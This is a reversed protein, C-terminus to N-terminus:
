SAKRRKEELVDLMHQHSAIKRRCRNQPAGNREIEDIHLWDEYTTAKDSLKSLLTELGPKEDATNEELWEAIARAVTQSDTRNEPITGRPGRRFWGAAFLGPEIMGTEISTANALLDARNFSGDDEFGIATVVSDCEIHKEENGKTKRLKISSLTGDKGIYEELQWGSHFVVRTTTNENPAAVLDAIVAANSGEDASEIDDGEALSFSLGHLRGLETIMEVDFRADKIPSRGVIHIEELPDGIRAPDLDSGDFEDGSKALLRAVDVAVNGNGLIVARRGFQPEFGDSAPHANWFRTVEGASYIGQLDSGPVDFKRDAYLGTALVVADVCERLEHLSLDKGIEVNGLFSVGQKEFLRAFQRTVAKTGQHDPAVGYRVLGYPVCLRELVAIQTEPSTKALAQALYCGGPGSGVIAVSKAM